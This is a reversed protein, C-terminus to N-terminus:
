LTLLHQMGLGIRDQKALVNRWWVVQQGNQPSAPDGEHKGASRHLLWGPAVDL